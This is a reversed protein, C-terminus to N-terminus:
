VKQVRVSLVVKLSFILILEAPLTPMPETLGPSFSVTAEPLMATPSPVAVVVILYPAVPAAVEVKAPSMEAMPMRATPSPEAVDVIRPAEAAVEVMLEPRVTPLLPAKTTLWAAVALLKYMLGEPLTPMPVVVGKLLNLTLPSMTRPRAAEVLYAVPVVMLLAVEVKAPPKIESAEEVM